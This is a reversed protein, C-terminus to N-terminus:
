VSSRLPMTWTTSASELLLSALRLGELFRDPVGFREGINVAYRALREGRAGSGPIRLDLVYLLLTLLQEFGLSLQGQEAELKGRDDRLEDHLRKTRLHADVKALLETAEIPKTIYDDVGLRLGQVKLVTDTYASLIIFVTSALNQNAKVEQCFEFGDMGPMEFDSLIIDPRFTRALALGATAELAIEVKWLGERQFLKQLAQLTRPEDDVILIKGLNSV